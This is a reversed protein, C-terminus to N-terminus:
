PDPTECPRAIFHRPLSQTTSLPLGSLNFFAYFAQQLIDRVVAECNDGHLEIVWTPRLCELTHKAGALAQAEAGEIDLKILDPKGFRACARDITTVDVTPLKEPHGTTEIHAVSSGAAVFDFPATGDFNWIAENVVSCSCLPNLAIQERISTCNDPSPDFAVCLGKEGVLRAALLTFFGANAGIDFFTQGRSLERHFADQLPWEYHGIWYGNVYRHHRRWSLGSAHGYRIPVVSGEAYRNVWAQVARRLWSLQGLLVIARAGIM